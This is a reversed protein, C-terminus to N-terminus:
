APVNPRSRNKWRTSPRTARASACRWNRTVPTSRRHPTLMAAEVLGGMKMVMAQVGELDRDFSSVIHKENNM